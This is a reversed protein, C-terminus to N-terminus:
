KRRQAITSNNYLNSHNPSSPSPYVIEIYLQMHISLQRLIFVKKKRKFFAGPVSISVVNVYLATILVM